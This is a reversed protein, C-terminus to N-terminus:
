TSYHNIPLLYAYLYNLNLQLTQRGVCRAGPLRETSLTEM